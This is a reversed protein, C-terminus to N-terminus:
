APVLGVNGSNSETASVANAFIARNPSYSATLQLMRDSAIKM